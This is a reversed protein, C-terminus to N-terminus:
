QTTDVRNQAEECMIRITQQDAVDFGRLAMLKEIVSWKKGLKITKNAIRSIMSLGSGFGPLPDSTSPKMESDKTLRNGVPESAAASMKPMPEIKPPPIVPVAPPRSTPPASPAANMPPPRKTKKPKKVKFGSNSKITTPSTSTPVDQSKRSQDMKPAPSTGFYDNDVKSGKVPATQTEQLDPLPSDSDSDDTDFGTTLGFMSVDKKIDALTKIPRNLSTNNSTSATTTVVFDEDDDAFLDKYSPVLNLIELSVSKDTYFRVAKQAFVTDKIATKQRTRMQTKVDVESPDPGNKNKKGRNGGGFFKSLINKGDKGGKIQEM